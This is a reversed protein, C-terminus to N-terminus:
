ESPVIHLVVGYCENVDYGSGASAGNLDFIVNVQGGATQAPCLSWSTANGNAALLPFSSAPIRIASYSQAAVPKYYRSALWGLPRGSTPTTANTFWDGSATLAHLSNNVLQISPYDNYPYSAWTSTVYFTAGTTAGNQGLVLPTGTTNTNSTNWAALTFNYPLTDIEQADAQCKIM